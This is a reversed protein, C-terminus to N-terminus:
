SLCKCSSLLFFSLTLGPLHWEIHLSPTAPKTIGKEFNDRIQIQHKENENESM